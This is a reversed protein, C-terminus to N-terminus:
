ATSVDKLIESYFSSVLQKIRVQDLRTEATERNATAASDVLEDDLLSMRLLRSILESDIKEVIFGSVGHEIWETVCATNTQIPFCGTAMAELMSTSIGDSDSIGVYIRASSFLAVMERHSLKKKPISRIKLSTTKRIKRVIRQARLTASYVVVEYESLEPEILSLAELAVAARGVFNTYGKVLVIRRKSTAITTKALNELIGRSIGGANPVVPFYTGTFGLDSALKHDRECEASYYDARKLLERLAFEHKKFQSFWYIDSGWNTIYLPIDSNLCAIQAMYGAHQLEIAHVLCAGSSRIQRRLLWARIRNAFVQDLIFLPLALIRMLGSLEIAFDMSESNLLSKLSPHIRRHPSSPFLVYRYPLHKVSEMWRAVHISDLMGVVVITITSKSYESQNM